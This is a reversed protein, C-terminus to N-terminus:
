QFPLWKQESRASEIVKEIFRMGRVGDAIGPYEIFGPEPETGQKRSNIDYAANRYLNAFAELYGEPHGGPVRLNWLTRKSLYAHNVGARLIQVPQDLMKLLLTNPEHQEWELGGKEGYVRIRVNNEEGASIQSAYLIGKAGGKFRLLVSADDDLRRGPVFSTIDACLAEIQLGTIYETLNEAHVGIDGLCGGPGNYEPKSRWAAQKNDSRELPTSLWGQPYEVVLKRLTGLKGSAILHKAEKVMPYGTYTHTLVFVLGTEGVKKELEEAQALSITAPKDCIVHFGKDLAAMAQPHHLHNPTTIMVAEMRMDEPMAAETEFMKEWSSYAREPAVHYREGARKSKEPISSFAGCVLEYYGDLMAARYHISGIFSGEGGGILGTRIKKEM